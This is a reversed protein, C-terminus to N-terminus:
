TDSKQLEEFTIGISPDHCRRRFKIGLRFAFFDRLLTQLSDERPPEPRKSLYTINWILDLM